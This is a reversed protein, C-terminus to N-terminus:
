AHLLAIAFDRLVTLDNPDGKPLAQVRARGDSLMWDRVLNAPLNQLTITQPDLSKDLRALDYHLPSLIASAARARTDSNSNALQKLLAALERADDAASGTAGAAARDLADAAHRIAAVDDQDSPADARRRPHLAPGLAQAAAHLAAIKQDQDGPIFNTLTLARKVEPVSALRKAIQDAQELSPALVEADNGSTEPESQLQRYTVVSPSNPN